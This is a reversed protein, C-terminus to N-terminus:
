RQLQAGIRHLAGESDRYYYASERDYWLEVFRAIEPRMRRVTALCHLRQISNFANTVDLASVVLDPELETMATVCKHVTECGASTSVAHQHPQLDASFRPRSQLCIARATLRRLAEGIALPRVGGDPKALPTLM